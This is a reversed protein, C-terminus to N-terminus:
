LVSQQHLFDRCFLDYWFWEGPQHCFGRVNVPRDSVTPSSGCSLKKVKVELLYDIREGAYRAKVGTAVRLGCLHIRTTVPLAPFDM